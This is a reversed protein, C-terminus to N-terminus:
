GLITSTTHVRGLGAIETAPFDQPRRLMWTGRDNILFVTVTHLADASPATRGVFQKM